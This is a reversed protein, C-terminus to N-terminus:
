LLLPPSTFGDDILGKAIHHYTSEILHIGDWDVFASPDKCATSGIHGRIASTNLNYPGGGGCCARLTGGYFGAQICENM